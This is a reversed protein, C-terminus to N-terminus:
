KVFGAKVADYGAHFWARGLIDKDQILGINASRSDESNGTNDGICFYTGSEVIMENAAIGADEIIEYVYPSEKGNVYCVGDQIRIRDGGVAVVRKVYYHENENGNPLFVVVDGADPNGLVYSFRDLYITQGNFLTPEMSEGIVKTSAGFFYTLALGLFLAIVVLIIYSIIEKVIKFSIRKKRRYFSLGRDNAM